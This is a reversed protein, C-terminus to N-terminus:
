AGEKSAQYGPRVEIRDVSQAFSAQQGDRLSLTNSLRLQMDENSNHATALHKVTSSHVLSLADYHRQVDKLEQQSQAQEKLLHHRDQEWSQAHAQMDQLEQQM